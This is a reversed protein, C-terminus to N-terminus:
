DKNSCVKNKGRSKAIYLADDAQKIIDAIYDGPTPKMTAFGVSITVNHQTAGDAYHIITEEVNKRIEEAVKKAGAADAGPLLVAFEEGGWRAAIDTSRKLSSEIVSAVSKLAVDGQQHGYTDNYVKFYDVDIMMVSLAKKERISYSWERKLHHDFQRRNSINTLTDILSLQEIIRLQSVIRLHTKIRAKVILEHFPKAIYDVAGLLLGKAEEKVKSMGSIIIVPIQRTSENIKLEVLVDFGDMGPMVIDLLILDPNEMMSKELAEIGTEAFALVYLDKLIRRLAEQNLRSDDVILIKYQNEDM